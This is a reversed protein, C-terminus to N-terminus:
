DWHGRDEFTLEMKLCNPCKYKKEELVYRKDSDFKWNLIGIDECDTKIIEGYPEVTSKCQPCKLNKKFINGVFITKCNFCPTPVNFVKPLYIMGLGVYVNYFEFNCECKPRLIGGM